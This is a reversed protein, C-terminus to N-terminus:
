PHFTENGAPYAPLPYPGIKDPTYSSAWHDPPGQNAPVANTVPKIGHKLYAVIGWLDADSYHRFGPWPMPPALYFPTAPFNGQGPVNSTIVVDPTNEPDLGYRLANFIQRDTDMGIGTTQDPTLNAPYTMFPGIQNPRDATGARFGALWQPDNPDNVGHSHCGACHGGTVLYRGRLVQDSTAPGNPLGTAAPPPPSGAQQQGAARIYDFPGPQQTQGLLRPASVALGVIVGLVSLAATGFAFRRHM